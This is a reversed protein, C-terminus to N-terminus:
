QKQLKQWVAEIIIMSADDPEQTHCDAMLNTNGRWLGFENRIGMGWYSHFRWLEKKPTDRVEIKDKDSLSAVLRTVAEDVTKPWNAREAATPVYRAHVAPRPKQCAVFMTVSAVVLIICFFRM